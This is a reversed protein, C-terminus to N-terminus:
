SLSPRPPWRGPSLSADFVALDTQAGGGRDPRGRRPPAGWRPSPPSSRARRRGVGQVTAHSEIVVFGFGSRRLEDLFDAHASGRQRRARHAEPAVAAAAVGPPRAVPPPSGRWCRGASPPSANWPTSPTSGGCACSSWAAGRSTGSWGGSACRMGDVMRGASVRMLARDVAEKDGAFLVLPLPAGARRRRSSWSFYVHGSPPRKLNRIEGSVWVEDPFARQLARAIVRDLEAVTYTSDMGRFSGPAFSVASLLRCTARALNYGGDTDEPAPSSGWSRHASRCM